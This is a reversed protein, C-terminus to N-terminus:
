LPWCALVDGQDAACTENLDCDFSGTCSPHSVCAGSMCSVPGGIGCDDVSGCGPMCTGRYCTEDSDCQVDDNCAGATVIDVVVRLESVASDKRMSLLYDGPPLAGTPNLTVTYRGNQNKAPDIRFSAGPYMEPADQPSAVFPISYFLDGVILNAGGVAENGSAEYTFTVSLFCGGDISCGINKEWLEDDTMSVAEQFGDGKGIDIQEIPDPAATGSCAAAFLLPAILGTLRQM